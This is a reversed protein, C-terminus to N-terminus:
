LVKCPASYTAHQVTMALLTVSCTLQGRMHAYACPIHANYSNFKNNNNNDTFFM